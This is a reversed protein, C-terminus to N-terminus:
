IPTALLELVGYSDLVVTRERFRATDGGLEVVDLYVGTAFPKSVGSQDSQMVLFQTRARVTGDAEPAEVLPPSLLHRDFHINYINATRLSAVRDQMMAVGRCDILCAPLGRAHNERPIVRYRGEATFFGPWQELADDDIAHAYRLQLEQVRERPSM